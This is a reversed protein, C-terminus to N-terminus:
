AQNGEYELVSTSHETHRIDRSIGTATSNGVTKKCALLVTTHDRGFISGIAKLSLETDRRIRRMAEQRAQDVAKGRKGGIIDSLAIGTEEAVQRAIKRGMCFQSGDSVFIWDRKM